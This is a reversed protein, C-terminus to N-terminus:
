SNEKSGLPPCIHHRFDIGLDSAGCIWCWDFHPVGEIDCKENLRDLIREALWTELETRETM